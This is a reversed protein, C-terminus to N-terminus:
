LTGHKKRHSYIAAGFVTVAVALGILAHDHRKSATAPLNKVAEEDYIPGIFDPSNLDLSGKLPATTEPVPLTMELVNVDSRQYYYQYQIGDTIVDMFLEDDSLRFVKTKPPIVAADAPDEPTETMTLTSDTSFWEVTMFVTDEKARGTGDELLQFVSVCEEDSSTYEGNLVTLLGDKFMKNIEWSGFFRSDHNADATLIVTDASSQHAASCAAPQDTLVAACASATICLAASIIHKNRMNMATRELYLHETDPKSSSKNYCFQASIYLLLQANQEIM